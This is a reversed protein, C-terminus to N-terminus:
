DADTTPTLQRQVPSLLDRKAVVSLVVPRHEGRRHQVSPVWERGLLVSITTPIAQHWIISLCFLPVYATLVRDRPLALARPKLAMRITTAM